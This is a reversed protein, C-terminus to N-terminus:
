INRMLKQMNMLLAAYEEKYVNEVMLFMDIDILFDLKVTTKKLAVQKGHQDLFQFLNKLILNIYKLVCIKLTKLYMQKCYHIAKLMCIM